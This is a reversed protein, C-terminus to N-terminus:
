MSSEGLSQEFLAESRITPDSIGSPNFLEDFAEENEDMEHSVMDDKSGTLIFFYSFILICFKSFIFTQWRTKTKFGKNIIKTGM